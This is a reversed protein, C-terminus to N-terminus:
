REPVPLLLQDDVQQEQQTFVPLRLGTDPDFFGIALHYSGSEAEQPLTLLFSDALVESARWGKTPRTGEVPVWDVQDVIEGNEDLLHVFVFYNTTPQAMVQWHLTLALKDAEVQMDYGHLAALDGFQADTRYTVEPLATILPWPQVYVEGWTVHQSKWLRWAPRGSVVDHDVLLQWRLKYRGPETEPPFYLGSNEKLLTDAPLQELWGVVPTHTDQRLITGDPAIVELTYQLGATPIPQDTQWYLSFPLNHGPRVTEEPMTMGALAMGNAFHIANLTPFPRELRVPWASEPALTVHSIMQAEGLATEEPDTFPQAWLTYDGPPIGLPLPLQYSRRAIGEEPWLAGGNLKASYAAWEADNPDRLTLRLQTTADPTPSSQWYLNMWITPLTIPTSFDTIGVLQPMVDWNITLPLTHPPLVPLTPVATDFATLAVLTTRAHATYEDVRLLNNELWSQILHDDDRKDAPSEPMFWIRDYTQALQALEPETGTARRPYIPLATVALDDRQQYHEQIPLQIANNYVVVDNDGAHQDVYRVLARFDDKAYTNNFFLNQLSIFPGVLLTVAALTAAAAFMIRKYGAGKSAAQRGLWHLGYAILILFAPSGVMIHRVGQYMPKLLSGVMLGLVVALLYALLFLRLRQPRAAFLGILLLAFAGLDLLRTLLQSFDVTMGLGFFHVVDQLMIGPQVYQYNAEAGTFLRPITFPVIPIAVLTAAIALGIIQRKYGRQWLLGILFLSQAAILFVATYHTYLALGTFLLYLFLPRWIKKSTLVRWLHYAAIAALLIYLAYMRAEKAYWIQLPNIAALLAIILGLPRGNLQRGFQYLLPILLLSALVSPYRFAFDSNGFLRRTVHILLYYLPPHTDQTIGEQIIVRNSLIESVPYESRLSTLGEDTWFGFTDLHYVRLAFSLYLIFIFVFSFAVARHSQKGTKSM